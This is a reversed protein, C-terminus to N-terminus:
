LGRGRAGAEIGAASQGVCGREEHGSVRDAVQLTTVTRELRQELPDSEIGRAVPQPQDAVQDIATGFRERRQAAQHREVVGHRHHEAIVVQVQERDGGAHALGALAVRQALDEIRGIGVRQEVPQPM